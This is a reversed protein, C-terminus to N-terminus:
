FTLAGTLSVVHTTVSPAAEYTTRMYDYEFWLAIGRALEFSIEGYGAVNLTRNTPAPEDLLDENDPDDFGGGGYFTLIDLAAWSAQGWAGVTEISGGISTIDGAADTTHVIGQNIGGFFADLGKGWFAEGKLKFRAPLPLTLDVAIAGNRLSEEGGTFPIKRNGIHGSVGLEFPKGFMKTAIALRAEGAPALSLEGGQPIRVSTITTEDRPIADTQSNAVLAAVWILHYSGMRIAGDVRLQPLRAWLNGSTTFGPVGTHFATVPNLPALVSWDQGFSLRVADWEVTATALRLRPLPFTYSDQGLFAGYFDAEVVGFVNEVGLDGPPENWSARVGFRSQRATFYFADDGAVAWQPVDPNNSSNGLLWSSASILLGYADITFSVSAAAGAASPPAVTEAFTTREEPPPESEPIPTNAGEHAPTQAAAVAISTFTFAAVFRSTRSSM